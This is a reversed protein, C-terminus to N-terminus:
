DMTSFPSIKDPLNTSSEINFQVVSADHFKIKSDAMEGESKFPVPAHM